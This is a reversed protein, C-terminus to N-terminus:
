SAHKLLIAALPPLTLNVSFPQGQYPVPVAELNGANGQGSGGYYESDTNLIERWAGPAPVGVRYNQRPVPTFNCAVIMTEAAGDHRAFALTSRSSDNAELWSFGAAECDLLHLAAEERYMRNLDGMMRQLRQHPGYQLLHWQLSADHSWEDRQGFECGMFLLKKGPQTYMYALLLRLTAFKQWDDGPIKNLLSGKGHVVEDHSLPLCFHETFAYVMRFTLENHHHPRYIPDNSVFQLTDHMWGMDWKLGFGLGGM